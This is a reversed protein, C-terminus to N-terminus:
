YGAGHRVLHRGIELACFNRRRLPRLALSAIMLGDRFQTAREWTLAIPLAHAGSSAAVGAEDVLPAEAAEMLEIGFALLDETSQLRPRKDRVPTTPRRKLRAICRQLWGIDTDPAIVQLAMVLSNLYTAVSSAAHQGRLHEVYEALVEPTAQAAASQTLDLPARRTLWGLWRGYGTCVGARTTPAWASARGGPDLLDGIVLAAQWAARDPAPWAELKLAMRARAM